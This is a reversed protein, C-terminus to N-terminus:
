VRRLQARAFAAFVGALTLALGYWTLAYELHRNPLTLRTVGGRPFGTADAPAPDADVFFPVPTLNDMGATKASALLSPFDPWFFRNLDPESTPIFWGRVIPRRALGTVVVSDAPRSVTPQQAGTLAAPVFGRNVLVLQGEPTVLATYAHFGPGLKDDIAFVHREGEHVFRGEARVHLYEVDGDDHWRRLAEALPMPAAGVRAAIQRQLSEKWTKRSIQWTGLGVLV